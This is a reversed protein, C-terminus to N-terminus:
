ITHLVSKYAELCTRAQERLTSTCKTSKVIREMEVILDKGHQKMDETMQPHLSDSGETSSTMSKDSKSAHEDSVLTKFVNELAFLARHISEEHKSGKVLKAFTSIGGLQVLLQSVEPVQSVMALAGSAARCTEFDEEEEEVSAFALWLRLKEENKFICEIVKENPILNCITETAARRVLEHDSFQLYQITSLAHPEMVIHTKTEESMSAINTLAMLAEFHILQSDSKCVELLPRISSFLSSVPLLSPNTTILIKAMAQAAANSIQTATNTRKDNGSNKKMALSHGLLAQFIGSQILHGRSETVESIYLASFVAMEVVNHSQESTFKVLQFLTPLVKPCKLLAKVRTTVQAPSDGDDLASKQKLAKQLEEYQEPTMDMGEMKKKKLASESTVLHHLIYAVGYYVTSRYSGKPLGKPLKRSDNCIMQGSKQSSSVLDVDFVSFIAKPRNTFAQKVRTITIMYSLAEISREKPSSASWHLTKAVITGDLDKMTRTSSSVQQQLKTEYIQSQELVDFVINMLRQNDESEMDLLKKAMLVKVQISLASARLILDQNDLAAHLLKSIEMYLEEPICSVGNEVGCICAICDVWIEQWSRTMSAGITIKTSAFSKSSILLKHLSEAFRTGERGSQQVATIALKSNTLFLASLLLCSATANRLQAENDVHASVVPRVCYEQVLGELKKEDKEFFALLQTFVLPLRSLFSAYHYRHLIREYKEADTGEVQENNVFIDGQSTALTAAARSHLLPFLGLSLVLPALESSVSLNADSQSQDNSMPDDAASQNMLLKLVSDLACLQLRLSQSRLGDMIGELLLRKMSDRSSQLSKITDDGICFYRLGSGCLTVARKRCELSLIRSSENYSCDRDDSAEKYEMAVCKNCVQLLDALVFTDKNELTYGAELVKGAAFPSSEAVTTLIKLSQHIIDQSKQQAEKGIGDTCEVEALLVSVSRWTLGIANDEELVFRKAAVESRLNGYQEMEMLNRLVVPKNESKKQMAMQEWGHIVEKLEDRAKVYLNKPDQQQQVKISIERALTVASQNKPDSRLVFRIEGLADALRELGAYAQARRYRAKLNDGFKLEEIIYTCDELASHHDKLHLAAAARNNRLSLENESRIQHSIEQVSLQAIAKTYAEVAQAFDKAKFQENGKARLAQINTSM